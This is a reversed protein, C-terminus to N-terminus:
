ESGETEVIEYSWLPNDKIEPMHPVSVFAYDIARMQNPPIDVLVNVRNDRGIEGCSAKIWSDSCDYTAIKLCVSSLRHNSNNKVEGTLEFTRHRQVLRVNQLRIQSIPILPGRASEKHNTRLALGVIVLVILAGVIVAGIKLRLMARLRNKLPLKHVTSEILVASKTPASVFALVVGGGRSAGKERLWHKGQL